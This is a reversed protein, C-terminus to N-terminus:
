WKDIPGAPVPVRPEFHGPLPAIPGAARIAAVTEDFLRVSALNILRHYLEKPPRIAHSPPSESALTGDPASSISARPRATRGPSISQWM